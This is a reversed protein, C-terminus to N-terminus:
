RAMEVARAVGRGPLKVREDTNYFRRYPRSDYTIKRPEGRVGKRKITLTVKGTDEDYECEIRETVILRMTWDAMKELPCMIIVNLRRKRFQFSYKELAKGLATMCERANGVIYYEDILLWAETIIDADLWEIIQDITCYVYPIGYLHYNCFIRVDSKAEYEEPVAIRRVVGNEDKVKAVHTIFNYAKVVWAKQLVDRVYLEAARKYYADIVRATGTGSKGSGQEGTLITVKARTFPTTSVVM